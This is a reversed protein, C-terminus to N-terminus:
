IFLQHFITNLSSVLFPRFGLASTYSGLQCKAISNTAVQEQKEGVVLSRTDM